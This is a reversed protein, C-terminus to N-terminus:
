SRVACIWVERQITTAFAGWRYSVTARVTKLHKGDAQPSVGVMVHTHYTVGDITRDPEDSEGVKLNGFGKSRISELSSEAVANAYTRVESHRVARMSNSFLGTVVFIVILLVAAVLAGEILSFGRV